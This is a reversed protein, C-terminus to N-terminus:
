APWPHALTSGYVLDKMLELPNEEMGAIMAACGGRWHFDSPFSPVIRHLRQTTLGDGPVTSRERGGQRAQTGPRARARTHLRSARSQFTAHATNDISRVEAIAACPATHVHLPLTSPWPWEEQVRPMDSDHGIEQSWFHQGHIFVKMFHRM